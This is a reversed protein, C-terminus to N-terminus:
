EAAKSISVKRANLAKVIARGIRKAAAPELDMDMNAVCKHEGEIRGSTVKAGEGVWMISDMGWFIFKAAEAQKTESM